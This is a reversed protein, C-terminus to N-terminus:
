QSFYGFKRVLEKRAKEEEGSEIHDVTYGDVVGVISRGLSTEAYIVDLDNSSAAYIHCVCPHAKIVNLAHIPYAGSLYIVAAHSAGIALMSKAACDKIADDNGVVRTVRPESENMAVAIKAQPLAAKLRMFLDDVTFITFNAQIIIVEYQRKPNIIRVSNLSNISSM